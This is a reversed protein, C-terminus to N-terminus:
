HFRLLGNRPFVPFDLFCNDMFHSEILLIGLFPLLIILGDM